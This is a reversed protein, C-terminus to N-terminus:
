KSIGYIRRLHAIDQIMEYDLINYRILKFRKNYYKCEKSKGSIIYVDCIPIRDPIFIWKREERDPPLYDIIIEKKFRRFEEESKKEFELADDCLIINNKYMIIEYTLRLNTIPYKSTNKIRLYINYGYNSSCFGLGCNNREEESMYEAIISKDFNNDNLIEYDLAISPMKNLLFAKYAIWWSLIGGIASIIPIIIDKILNYINMDYMYRLFINFDM